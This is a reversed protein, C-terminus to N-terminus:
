PADAVFRFGDGWAAVRGISPLPFHATCMLTATDCFCGFIKRRTAGAQARDYDALMGLEPYRAQIPSHIMDGTILADRGPTGALVSFHDITHGPTPVLRVLDGVADESTVLRERKAELIPLVSDGIWPAAAADAAFRAQWHALEVASFLYEAKPFTPVWRGDELRTNWGVHDVHLHTCMVVDIDEVGLGIAALNRMWADSKQRHWAPRGPREKDNGVCSDVLITHSPTRVVYSQITLNLNGTAADMYVPAMWGLNEALMEETLDPFFTQAKFFSAESEVVRQITVEGLSILDTM